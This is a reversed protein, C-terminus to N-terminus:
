QGRLNTQASKNLTTVVNKSLHKKSEKVTLVMISGVLLIGGLVNVTSLKMPFFPWAVLVVFLPSTARIMNSFRFSLFRFSDFFLSLALFTITGATVIYALIVFPLHVASLIDVREFHAVILCAAMGFLNNFFLITVSSSRHVTKKVLLNSVAFLFTYSFGLTIGFYDIGQSVNHFVFLFTGLLALGILAWEGAFMTEGLVIVSLITAFVVYFRGVMGVVIPNLLSLASYLCIMGMANLSAIPLINKTENPSFRHGRRKIYLFSLISSVMCIIFMVILPSASKMALKSFVLACANLVVSLVNLIVGKNFQADKM